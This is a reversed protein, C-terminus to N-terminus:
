LYCGQQPQQQANNDSKELSHRLNHALTEGYTMGHTQQAGFLEGVTNSYIPTTDKARGGGEMTNQYIPSGYSDYSAEQKTLSYLQDIEM